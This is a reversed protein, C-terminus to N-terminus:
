NLLDHSGDWDPPDSVSVDHLSDKSAALGMAAGVFRVNTNLKYVM